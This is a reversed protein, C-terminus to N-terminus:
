YIYILDTLSYTENIIRNDVIVTPAAFIYSDNQWRRMAAIRTTVEDSAPDIPPNSLPSLDACRNSVIRGIACWLTEKDASSASAIIHRAVSEKQPTDTPFIYAVPLGKKLLMDAQRHTEAASPSSPDFFIVTLPSSSTDGFILPADPRLPATQPQDAQMANFVDARLRLNNYAAAKGRDDIAASIVPLLRDIILLAGLYCFGLIFFSYQIPWLGHWADAILYSGFLLWQLCQVTVCLTCWTKAVFKQYSISWITYPLCCANFLALYGICAPYLLLAALSISFYALGVEGWGIVGFIKSVDREMIKGCGGRQLLGCIASGTTGAIHLQERILLYCFYIGTLNFVAVLTAGINLYLRNALYLLLLLAIGSLAIGWRRVAGVAQLQRHHKIHPERSCCDPKASLAKGNWKRVFEEKPITHPKGNKIITVDNDEVSKVITLQGLLMAVFPTPIEPLAKKDAFRKIESSIEYQDLLNQFGKLTGSYPYSDFRQDTFAKTHPVGLCTLFDSCITSM